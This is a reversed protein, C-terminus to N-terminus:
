IKMTTVHQKAEVIVIYAATDPSINRVKKKDKGVM